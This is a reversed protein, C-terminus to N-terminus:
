NIRLQNEKNNDLIILAKLSKPFCRKIIAISNKLTSGTTLVDDFIVIKKNGIKHEYGPKLYITDKKFRETITLNKQETEEKKELVLEYKLNCSKLIEELHNFGREKIKNESSPCPIFIYDHYLLKILNLFPFLFCPSLEVDKYEKYNKLLNKFISNYNSLFLTNVFNIKELKLNIPMQKLCNDCIFPEIEILKRIPKIKLEEFCIKCYKSM